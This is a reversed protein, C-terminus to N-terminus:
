LLIINLLNKYRKALKKDTTVFDTLGNELCSAVQLADEFDSDNSINKAKIITESDVNIIDYFELLSHIELINVGNRRAKEYGFLYSFPSIYYTEYKELVVIIKELFIDQDFISILISADLFLNKSNM